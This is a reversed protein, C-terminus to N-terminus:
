SGTSKYHKMAFNWIKYSIFFFVLGVPLSLYQALPPFFLFDNKGLLNQAPYFAAFALPAVSSFIIQVARPYVSIPYEATTRIHNYFGGNLPNNLLAFSVASFLIWIGGQIFAGGLVSLALMFVTSFTFRISLNAACFFIMGVALFFHLFYYDSFSNAMVYVLPHLPKTMSQDFDGSRIKESLTHMIDSFFSNALTYSALIYAYLTMVEFPKWGNITEFKSVMLFMLAAQTGYGLVFTVSDIWFSGRYQINGKIRTKMFLWFIGAIRRM